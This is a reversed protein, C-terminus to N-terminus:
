DPKYRPDLTAAPQFAEMSEFKNLRTERSSQLVSVLKSKYVEHLSALAARLGGVCNVVLCSTVMNQGQIQNTVYEFPELIDCLEKISNLEYQKLKYPTDLKDQPSFYVHPKATASTRDVTGDDAIYVLSGEKEEKKGKNGHWADKREVARGIHRGGVYDVEGGGWGGNDGEGGKGEGSMVM